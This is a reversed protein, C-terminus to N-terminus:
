CPKLVPSHKVYLIDPINRVSSNLTTKRTYEICDTQISLQILKKGKCTENIKKIWRTCFINRSITIESKNFRYQRVHAECVNYVNVRTLELCNGCDLNSLLLHEKLSIVNCLIMPPLSFLLYFGTKPHVRKHFQLQWTFSYEMLSKAPMAQESYCKVQWHPSLIHSGWLIANKRNPNFQRGNHPHLFQGASTPICCRLFCFIKCHRSGFVTPGVMKDWCNPFLHVAVAQENAPGLSQEILASTWSM